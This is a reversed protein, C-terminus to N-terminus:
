ERARQLFMTRQSFVRSQTWSMRYGLDNIMEERRRKARGIKPVALEGEVEGEAGDLLPVPVMTSGMVAEEEGDGEGNRSGGGEEDDQFFRNGRSSRRTPSKMQIPFYSRPYVSNDRRYGDPIEMLDVNDLNVRVRVKQNNRDIDDVVIFKRRKAEPLDGYVNTSATSPPRPEKSDDHTSDDIKTLTPTSAAIASSSNSPHATPHGSLPGDIGDHLSPTLSVTGQAAQPPYNPYGPFVQSQRYDNPSPQKPM